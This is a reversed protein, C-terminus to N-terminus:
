FPAGVLELDPDPPEQDDQMSWEDIRWATLTNFLAADQPPIQKIKEVVDYSEQPFSKVYFSIKMTSTEETLSLATIQSLPLIGYIRKVFQKAMERTGGVTLLLDVSSFSKLKASPTALEGIVLTYDSVSVGSEIASQNIADMIAAFDKESPLASFTLQLNDTLNAHNLSTLYNINGKLNKIRERTAAVENNISFLDNVQPIIVAWILFSSVVFLIGIISGLYFPSDKYRFYLLTLKRNRANTVM